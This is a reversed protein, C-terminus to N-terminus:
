LKKEVDFNKFSCENGIPGKFAVRIGEPTNPNDPNDFFYIYLFCLYKINEHFLKINIQTIAEDNLYIYLLNKHLKNLYKPCTLVLTCYNFKYSSGKIPVGQLMKNFTRM